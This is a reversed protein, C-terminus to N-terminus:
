FKFGLTMLGQVTNTKLEAKDAGYFAYLDDKQNRFVFAVDTYFNKTFRYGLGYTFYNTNGDLTYHMVSRGDAVVDVDGTKVESKIPSEMWAYGVRASFQPTIRYEAGVRLASAAKFDEKIYTNPDSKIDGTLSNGDRDYLKMSNKYNTIEYDVSIIANNGIIGALSVTWKDPTRFKYDFIADELGDYSQVMTNNYGPRFMLNPDGAIATFEHKLDAAFYDTMKYWTPSHYALGIRLEPIPKVIVGAKVQLGSGNTKNWNYLDFGIDKNGGFNEETYLSYLRYDIDTVSITVGASVIDAFTTGLNFDYTNISGKEQWYLKNSFGLGHNYDNKYRTSAVYENQANPKNNILFANYGFVALWDYNNWVNWSNNGSINIDGSRYGNARYAMYDSASTGMDNGQFSIRRDFNKLRNYSFGVNLYPAVDNDLPLSSVFALNDFTFKFKNESLKGMNLNSQTKTNQFNLTTVIEYSKYVGIGAPNIAIGSIDGGLAGFAGGMSMSRATGTLDNKSFSYANMENQALVTGLSLIVSLLLLSIHKM